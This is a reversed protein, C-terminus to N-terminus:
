PGTDLREVGLRAVVVRAGTRHQRPRQLRLQHRTLPLPEILRQVQLQALQAPRNGRHQFSPQPKGPLLGHTNPQHTDLWQAQWRGGGNGTHPRCVEIQLRKDTRRPM